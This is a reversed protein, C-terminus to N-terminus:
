AGLYCSVGNKQKQKTQNNFDLKKGIFITLIAHYWDALSVVCFYFYSLNAGMYIRIENGHQACEAKKSRYWAAGDGSRVPM